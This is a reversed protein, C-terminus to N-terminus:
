KKIFYPIFISEASPLEPLVVEEYGLGEFHKKVTISVCEGLFNLFHKATGFIGEFLIDLAKMLDNSDIKSLIGYGVFMNSMYYLCNGHAESIFLEYNDESQDQKLLERIDESAGYHFSLDNRIFKIWLTTQFFNEIHKRSEEGDETLLAAYEERLKTGYYKKHLM